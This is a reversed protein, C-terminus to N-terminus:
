DNMIAIFNNSNSKKDNIKLILLPWLSKKLGHNDDLLCRNVKGGGHQNEFKKLNMLVSCLLHVSSSIRKYIFFFIGVKFNFTVVLIHDTKEIVNM